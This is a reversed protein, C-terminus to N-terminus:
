GRLTSLLRSVCSMHFLLYIPAESSGRMSGGHPVRRAFNTQKAMWLLHLTAQLGPARSDTVEQLGSVGNPRLHALGSPWRCGLVRVNVTPKILLATENHVIDPQRKRLMEGGEVQSTASVGAPPLWECESTTPFTLEKLRRGRTDVHKYKGHDGLGVGSEQRKQSKM